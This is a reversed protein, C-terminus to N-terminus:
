WSDQVHLPVCRNSLWIKGKSCIRPIRFISPPTVLKFNKFADKLNPFKFFVNTIDKGTNESPIRKTFTAKGSIKIDQNHPRIINIKGVRLNDSIQKVSQSSGALYNHSFEANAYMATSTIIFVNLLLVSINM